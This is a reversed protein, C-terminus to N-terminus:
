ANFEGKRTMLQMKIGMAECALSIEVQSAWQKSRIQACYSNINMGEKKVLMKLDLEAVKIDSIFREYFMHSGKTRLRQIEATTVRQGSAKMACAYGCDHQGKPSWRGTRQRRHQRLRMGGERQAERPMKQKYEPTNGTRLSRTPMPSEQAYIVPNSPKRNESRWIRWMYAGVMLALTAGLACLTAATLYMERRTFAARLAVTLTVCGHIM